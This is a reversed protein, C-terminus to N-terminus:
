GYKFYGLLGSLIFLLACLVSHVILRKSKIRFIINVVERGENYNLFKRFLFFLLLNFCYFFVVILSVVLLSSLRKIYGGSVLSILILTIVLLIYRASIAHELQDKLHNKIWHIKVRPYEMEIILLVSLVFCFLYISYIFIPVFYHALISVILTIYVILELRTIIKLNKRFLMKVEGKPAPKYSTGQKLKSYKLEKNMIQAGNRALYQRLKWNKGWKACSNLSAYSTRM